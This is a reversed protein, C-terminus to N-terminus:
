NKTYQQAKLEVTSVERQDSHNEAQLVSLKLILVKVSDGSYIRKIIM